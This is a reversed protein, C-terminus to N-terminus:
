GREAERRSELADLAALVRGVSRSVHGGLAILGLAVISYGVVSLLFLLVQTRDKWDVYVIAVAFLTAELLAAVLIAGRVVRQGREMRDLVSARVADLGAEDTM